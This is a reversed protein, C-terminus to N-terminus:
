VEPRVYPSDTVILSLFPSPRSAFSFVLKTFYKGDSSKKKCDHKKSM